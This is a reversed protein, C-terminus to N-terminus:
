LFGLDAFEKVMEVSRNRIARIGPPDDAKDEGTFEEHRLDALARFDALTKLKRQNPSLLNPM